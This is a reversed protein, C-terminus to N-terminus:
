SNSLNVYRTFILSSCSYMVYILRVYIAYLPFLLFCDGGFFCYIEHPDFVHLGFIFPKAM